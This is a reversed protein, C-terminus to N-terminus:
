AKADSSDDLKYMVSNIGEVIPANNFASDFSKKGFPSPPAPFMEEPTPIPKAGAIEAMSITGIKLKFANFNIRPNPPAPPLSEAINALNAALRPIEVLFAQKLSMALSIPKSLWSFVSGAAGLPDSLANKVVNLGQIVSAAGAYHSQLTKLVKQRQREVMINVKWAMWRCCSDVFDQTYEEGKKFTQDFFTTVNKPVQELFDNFSKLYDLPSPM